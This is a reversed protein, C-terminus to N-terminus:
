ALSHLAVGAVWAMAAATGGIALTELGGRWVAAGQVRSKIWGVAFLAVATAGASVPLVPLAIGMAALVFPALPIAGVFNFAVFTSLAARLPSPGEVVLGLEETLMTDVWRRRDSTVVAVIQELLEGDFGKRAYIQRVEEREGDPVEDVHREEISRMTEVRERETRARQHNSVAMSFGDALLNAVGLILAIGSPLQAGAVGAVVAFTTVCGDIAGLVGDGLYSHERARALRVAITESRHDRELLDRQTGTDNKGRLGGPNTVQTFPM